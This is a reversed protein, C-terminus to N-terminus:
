DLGHVGKGFMIRTHLAIATGPGALLRCCAAGIGSAAGTILYRREAM